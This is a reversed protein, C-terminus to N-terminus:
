RAKGIVQITAGSKVTIRQRETRGGRHTFTVQHEGPALAIPGLPARGAAKGDVSVEPAGAAEIAIWGPSPAVHIAIVQGAEALITQRVRYGLAENVFEIERQGPSLQLDRGPVSGLVRSGELV